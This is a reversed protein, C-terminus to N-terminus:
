AFWVLKAFFFKINNDQRWIVSKRFSKRLGNWFIWLCMCTRVYARVSKVCIDPFQILIFYNFLHWWLKENGTDTHEYTRENMRRNKCTKLLKEYNKKENSSLRPVNLNIVHKMGVSYMQYLNLHPFHFLTLTHAQTRAFHPLPLCLCSDLRFAPSTLAICTRVKPHTLIFLM